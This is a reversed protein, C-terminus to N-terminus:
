VRLARRKEYEEALVWLHKLHAAVEERAQRVFEEAMIIAGESDNRNVQPNRNNRLVRRANCILHYLRQNEYDTKHFITTPTKSFHNCLHLLYPLSFEKPKFEWFVHLLGLCVQELVLQALMMEIRPEKYKIECTDLYGLFQAAQSYKKNWKKEIGTVIKPYYSICHNYGLDKENKYYIWKSETIIHELFHSGFSRKRLIEGVTFLISYVKCDQATEQFIFNTIEAPSLPAPKNTVLMLTYITTNQLLSAAQELYVELMQQDEYKSILFVSDVKLRTKILEIVGILLKDETEYTGSKTTHTDTEETNVKQPTTLNITEEAEIQIEEGREDAKDKKYSAAFCRQWTFYFVSKVLTFLQETKYYLMDIAELTPEFDSQYRAACYSQDLLKLVAVEEEANPDFFSALVPIFGDCYAQHERLRHTIKNRGMLGCEATRFLLEITQHYAFTSQAYHGKEFHSSAGENFADIKKLEKDFARKSRGILDNLCLAPTMFPFELEPQGYVMRGLLLNEIFFLNGVEIQEMAYSQTYIRHRLQAHGKLLADAKEFTNPNCAYESVIITLMSVDPNVIFEGWFIFLPKLEAILENLLSEPLLHTPVPSSIPKYSM